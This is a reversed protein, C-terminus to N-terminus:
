AVALPMEVLWITLLVAAELLFITLLYGIQPAKISWGSSEISLDADYKSLANLTNEERKLNQRIWVFSYLALILSATALLLRHPLPFLFGHIGAITIVGGIIGLQISSAWSFVRWEKERLYQLENAIADRAFKLEDSTRDPYNKPSMTTM